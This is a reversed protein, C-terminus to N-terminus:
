KKVKLIEKPITHYMELRLVTNKEGMLGEYVKKPIETYEEFIRLYVPEFKNWKTDWQMSCFRCYCMGMGGNSCEELIASWTTLEGCNSCIFYRENM